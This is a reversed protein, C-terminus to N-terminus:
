EVVEVKKYQDHKILGIGKEGEECRIYDGWEGSGYVDCKYFGHFGDKSIFAVDMLYTPNKNGLMTIEIKKGIM